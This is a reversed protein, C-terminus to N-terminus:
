IPTSDARGTEPRATVQKAYLECNRPAIGSMWQFKGQDFYAVHQYGNSLSVFAAIISKEENATIAARSAAFRLASNLPRLLAPDVKSATVTRWNWGAVADEIGDTKPGRAECRECLVYYEDDEWIYQVALSELGRPDSQGCFPCNALAEPLRMNELEEETM